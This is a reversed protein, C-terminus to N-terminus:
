EEPKDNPIDTTIGAIHVDTLGIEMGSGLEKIAYVVKSNLDETKRIIKARVLVLDGVNYENRKM